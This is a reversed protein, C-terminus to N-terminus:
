RELTSPKEIVLKLGSQLVMRENRLSPSESTRVINVLQNGRLLLPLAKLLHKFILIVSITHHSQRSLPAHPQLSNLM